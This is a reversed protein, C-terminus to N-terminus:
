TQQQETETDKPVDERMEKDNEKKKPKVIQILGNPLKKIISGEPVITGYVPANFGTKYMDKKNAKDAKDAM